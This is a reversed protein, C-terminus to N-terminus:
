GLHGEGWARPGSVSWLTKSQRSESLKGEEREQGPTNGSCYGFSAGARLTKVDVRTIPRLPFNGGLRVKIGGATYRFRREIKERQSIEKLDYVYDVEPATDKRKELGHFRCWSSSTRSLVKGCGGGAWFELIGPHRGAPPRPCRGVPTQIRLKLPPSRCLRWCLWSPTLARSQPLLPGPPVTVLWDAVVCDGLPAPRASGPAALRAGPQPWPRLAVSLSRARGLGLDAAAPGPAM